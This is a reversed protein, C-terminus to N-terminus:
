SILCFLIKGTSERLPCHLRQSIYRGMAITTCVDLTGHWVMINCKIDQLSFGWDQGWLTYEHSIANLQRRSLIEWESKCFMLEVEPRSAITQDCLPLMKHGARNDAVVQELTRDADRSVITHMFSPFHAVIYWALKYQM